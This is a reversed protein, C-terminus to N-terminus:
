RARRVAQMYVEHESPAAPVMENQCLEDAVRYTFARKWISRQHNLLVDGVVAAGAAVVAIWFAVAWGNM